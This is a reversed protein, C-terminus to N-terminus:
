GTNRAVLLVRYDPTRRPIKDYKMQGAPCARSTTDTAGDTWDIIAWVCRGDKMHDTLWLELHDGCERYWITGATDDRPGRVDTSRFACGGGGEVMLPMGVDVQLDPRPNFITWPWVWAIATAVLAGGVAAALAVLSMARWPRGAQAPKTPTETSKAHIIKKIPSRGSSMAVTAWWEDWRKLEDDVAKRTAGRHLLCGTVFAHVFDPQPLSAPRNNNLFESLTSPALCLEDINRIAKRLEAAAPKGAKVHLAHLWQRFERVSRPAADTDM